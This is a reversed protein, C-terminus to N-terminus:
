IAGPNKCKGALEVRVAPAWALGRGALCASRVVALIARRAFGFTVCLSVSTELVTSVADTGAAGAALVAAVAERVV